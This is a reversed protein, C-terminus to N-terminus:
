LQHHGAVPPYLHLWRVVGTDDSEGVPQPLCGDVTPGDLGDGPHPRVQGHLVGVRDLRVVDPAPDGRTGEETPAAHAARGSGALEDDARVLGVEAHQEVVHEEVLTVGDRKLQEHLRADHGGDGEYQRGVQGSRPHGDRVCEGGDGAHHRRDLDHVAADGGPLHLDGVGDGVVGRGAPHDQAAPDRGDGLHVQAQDPYQQVAVTDRDLARGARRREAVGRAAHLPQRVLEARRAPAQAATVDDEHPRQVAQDRDPRGVEVM